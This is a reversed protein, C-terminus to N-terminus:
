SWRLPSLASDLRQRGRASVFGVLCLREENKLMAESAYGGREPPGDELGM